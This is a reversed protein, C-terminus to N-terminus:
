QETVTTIRILEKTLIDSIVDQEDDEYTNLCEQATMKTIIKEDELQMYYGEEDIIGNMYDSHISQHKREISKLAEKCGQNLKTIKDIRNEGSGAYASSALSLLSIFQIMLVKKFISNM